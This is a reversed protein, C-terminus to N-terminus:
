DSGKSYSSVCGQDLDQPPFVYRWDPTDSIQAMGEAPIRYLSMSSLKWEKSALGWVALVKM